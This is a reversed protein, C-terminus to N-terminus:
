IFHVFWGSAGSPKGSIYRSVLDRGLDVGHDGGSELPNWALDFHLGTNLGPKVSIDRATVHGLATGNYLLTFDAM